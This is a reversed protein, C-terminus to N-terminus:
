VANAEPTQYAAAIAPTNAHQEEEQIGLDSKIDAIEKDLWDNGADMTQGSCRFTMLGQLHVWAFWNLTKIKSM